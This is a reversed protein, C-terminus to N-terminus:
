SLKYKDDVFLRKVEISVANDLVRIYRPCLTHELGRRECYNIIKEREEEDAYRIIINIGHIDRHIIDFDKLDALIAERISDIGKLRAKLTQIREALMGDLPITEIDVIDSFTSDDFAILGARGFSVPKDAGFSCVKIDGHRATGTGISGSIDNILLTDTDRCVEAISGMDELAHYGPMSNILLVADKGYQQLCSKLEEIVILGCDTKLRILRFGMKGPYQEYTIWGGQDQIIVHKKQLTRAIELAYRIAKNGRPVILINKSDILDRLAEM